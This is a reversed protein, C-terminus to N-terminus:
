QAEPDERVRATHMRHPGGQRARADIRGHANPQGDGQRRTRPPRPDLELQQEPTADRVAQALALKLQALSKFPRADLASRAIWPSHEYVGDLLLAAEEAPAANLQELTLIM